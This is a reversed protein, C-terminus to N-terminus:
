CNAINSCVMKRIQNNKEDLSFTLDKMKLDAARLEARSQTLQEQLSSLENEQARMAKLCRGHEQTVGCVCLQLINCQWWWQRYNCLGKGQRVGGSIV